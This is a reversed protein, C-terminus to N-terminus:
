KGASTIEFDGNSTAKIIITGEWGTGYIARNIEVEEYDSEQKRAAQFDVPKQRFDVVVSPKNQLINLTGIRPHGHDWASGNGRTKADGMSIVAINPSMVDILRDSTDDDAGHHSVQYVDVDFIGLNSAYQNLLAREGRDELDGTFLFSSEGFDIRIIVSHNNPNTYEKITSISENVGGWIATIVPDVEPCSIPDIAANTVGTATVQRALEIASYTAGSKRAAQRFATQKRVTGKTGTQGNDVVSKIKFPGDGNADLLRPLGNIHDAHPHTLFIVDITRNLHPREAFFHELYEVFLKGGNVKGTGSGYEGGADIVATQCPFELIAGDGQGVDVFHVFMTSPKTKAKKIKQSPKQLPLEFPKEPGLNKLQINLDFEKRLPIAPLTRKSFGEAPASNMQPALKFAEQPLTLLEEPVEVGSNPRAILYPLGKDEPSTPMYDPGYIEEGEDNTYTFKPDLGGATDQGRALTTTIILCAFLLFNFIRM